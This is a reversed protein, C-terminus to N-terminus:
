KDKKGGGIALSMSPEVTVEGDTPIRVQIGIRFHRFLEVGFRPAVGM